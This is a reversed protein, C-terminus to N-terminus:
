FVIEIELPDSWVVFLKLHQIAYISQVSNLSLPLGLSISLDLPNRSTPLMDGFEILERSHIPM